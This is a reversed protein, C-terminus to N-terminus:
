RIVEALMAYYRAEGFIVIADHQVDMAFRQGERIGRLFDELKVVVPSLRVPFRSRVKSAIGDVNKSLQKFEQENVNPVLVVIDVDSTKTAEERAASGFLVASQVEPLFDSLNKAFEQLAWALRRNNSYFVERKQIEFLECLKRAEANKLNIRYYKERGQKKVVVLGKKALKSLNVSVTYSSVKVKRALENTYYWKELDEHMSSLVDMSKSTLSQTMGLYDLLLRLYTQFVLRVNPFGFSVSRMRRASLNYHKIVCFPNPGVYLRIAKFKM